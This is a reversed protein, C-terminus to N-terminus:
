KNQIKEIIYLLQNAVNKFDIEALNQITKRAELGMSSIKNKNQSFWRRKELSLSLHVRRLQMQQPEEKPYVTRINMLRLLERIRKRNAIYGEYRLMDQM